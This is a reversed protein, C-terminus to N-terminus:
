GVTRCHPLVLADAERVDIMAGNRKSSRWENRDEHQDRHLLGYSDDVVPAVRSMPDALDLMPTVPSTPKLQICLVAADM